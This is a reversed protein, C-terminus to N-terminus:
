MTQPIVLSMIKSLLCQKWPRLTLRASKQEENINSTFLQNLEARTLYMQQSLNSNEPM